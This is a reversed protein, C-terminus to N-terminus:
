NCPARRDTCDPTPPCAVTVELNLGFPVVLDSARHRKYAELHIRYGSLNAPHCDCVHGEWLAFKIYDGPKSVEM